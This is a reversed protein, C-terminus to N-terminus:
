IYDCIIAKEGEVRFPKGCGLIKKQKYWMECLHMPSHPPVPKSDIIFVGHRFIGCNLQEIEVAGQCHPCNVIFM